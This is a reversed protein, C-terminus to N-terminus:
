CQRNWYARQAEELLLRRNIALDRAQQKFKATLEEMEGPSLNEPCSRMLRKFEAEITKEAIPQDNVFLTSKM